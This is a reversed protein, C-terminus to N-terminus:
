LVTCNGYHAAIRSLLMNLYLRTQVFAWLQRLVFSHRGRSWHCPGRFRVVGEAGKLPGATVRAAMGLEVVQSGGQDAEARAGAGHDPGRHHLGIPAALQHATRLPGRGSPRRAKGTVVPSISTAARAHAVAAAPNGGGSSSNASGSGATALQLWEPPVRLQRSLNSSLVSVLEVLRGEEVLSQCLSVMRELQILRATETNPAGEGAAADAHQQLPSQVEEEHGEGAAELVDGLRCPSPSVTAADSDTSTAACAGGTVRGRPLGHASAPWASPSPPQHVNFGAFSRQASATSPSDCAGDGHHSAGILRGPVPLPTGLAASGVALSHSQGSDQATGRSACPSPTSASPPSESVSSLSAAPSQGKHGGRGSVAGKSTANDEPTSLVPTPTGASDGVLAPQAPAGTPQGYPTVDEDSLPKFGPPTLVDVSLRSSIGSSALVAALRSGRHLPADALAQEAEASASPDQAGLPSGYSTFASISVRRPLADVAGSGATQLM